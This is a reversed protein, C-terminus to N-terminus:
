VPFACDATVFADVLRMQGVSAVPGLSSITTYASKPLPRAIGTLVFVEDRMHVGGHGPSTRAGGLKNHGALEQRVSRDADCSSFRGKDIPYNQVQEFVTQGTQLALYGFEASASRARGAPGAALTPDERAAM